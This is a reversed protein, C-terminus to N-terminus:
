KTLAECKGGYHAYMYGDASVIQGVTMEAMWLAELCQEPQFNEKKLIKGNLRQIKILVCSKM